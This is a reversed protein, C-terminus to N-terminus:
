GWLELEVENIAADESLSIVSFKKGATLDYRAFTIQVIDNLKLTFPQTKVRVRYVNGNLAM